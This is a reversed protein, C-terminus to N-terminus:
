KCKRNASEIGIHQGMLLTQGSKGKEQRHQTGQARLVRRGGRGFEEFISDARHQGVVAVAAV